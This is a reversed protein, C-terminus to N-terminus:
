GSGPGVSLRVRSLPGAYQSRLRTLLGERLRRDLEYAIASSDVRAHLVGGRLATLETRASLESPVETEWLAIMAGLQRNVKATHRGIAEVLPVISLDRDRRARHERLRNIARASHDANM